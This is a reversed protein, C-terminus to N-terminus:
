AQAAEWLAILQDRSAVPSFDVHQDALFKRWTSTSAARSPPHDATAQEDAEPEEPVSVPEPDGVTFESMPTAPGDEVTETYPTIKVDVVGKVTPGDSEVVIVFGADILRQVRDTLQVTRRQGKALFVSPTQSGEITVTAM